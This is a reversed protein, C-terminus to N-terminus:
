ATLDGYVVWTDTGRKFLTASSWQTRLKLGPTANVTVGTDGAITVQGSGVQLIDLSTGIPFAVSANTPITITVASGSNVEILNDRETLSSITYSATKAVIPTISVVGASSQQTGDSFQIKAGSSLVPTGSWTPSSLTKNQLTETGALTAFDADSLATNFHAITGTLTNSGLNITKNTLTQATSLDATIATDISLTGPTPESLGNGANIAQAANFTIYNIATTGITITGSTSLIFGFGANITGNEVFVFDGYALEGAPSNDADEARTLVWNTSGSGVTTVKYLGNQKADTQNKVLVRENLALSHGDIVIAAQTGNNTLTAGVGDTGNNYNANLNATTAAHVEEHFNIGATVNDVYSKTAAHLSQTPLGNLTLAGTLTGGSLNLKADLQNQISSTVGDTYNLETTSATIGDLVNLESASATLDSVNAVQVTIINNAYSITKNTLTQTDSAGVVDGTTGHAAHHSDHEAIEDYVFQKSALALTNAIGHVNSTDSEHSSVASTVDSLTALAATNSIGHVNLIELNHDSVATDAYTELDTVANALEGQLDVVANGVVADAYDNAANGFSLDANDVYLTVNAIASDTYIEMSTIANTIDDQLGSVANSLNNATQEELFGIQDSVSCSLMSINNDTYEIAQLLSNNINNSLTLYFDADNNIADAIESLTDLTSPSLNVLDSIATTVDSIRAINNSIQTDPVVVNANLTAVGNAIGKETLLIYDDLNGGLDDINKFYSLDEWQSIGDGFKFQGTDTEFGIEGSALTPNVNSWQAATGRRHFIRTAM